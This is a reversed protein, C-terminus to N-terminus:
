NSAKVEATIDEPRMALAKRMVAYGGTSEYTALSKAGENGFRATVLKPSNRWDAPPPPPPKPTETTAM